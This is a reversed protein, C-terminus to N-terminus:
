FYEKIAKKLSSFSEIVRQFGRSAVVERKVGCARFSNRQHLVDWEYNMEPLFRLMREELIKKKGMQDYVSEYFILECHDLGALNDIVRLLQLFSDIIAYKRDYSQEGNMKMFELCSNDLTFSFRTLERCSVLSRILQLITEYAAWCDFFSLRLVSLSSMESITKTLLNYDVNKIKVCSLLSLDLHRLNSRMTTLQNTLDQIKFLQSKSLDINLGISHLSKLSGLMSILTNLGAEIRWGCHPIDLRFIKINKKLILPRLIMILMRDTIKTHTLTISVEKPSMLSRIIRSVKRVFHTDLSVDSLNISFIRLNKLSHLLPKLIIYTSSGRYPLKFDSLNIQAESLGKVLRNIRQPSKLFKADPSRVLRKLRKLYKLAQRYGTLSTTGPLKDTIQHLFRLGRM